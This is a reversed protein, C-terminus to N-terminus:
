EVCGNPSINCSETLEQMVRSVWDNWEAPSGLPVIQPESPTIIEVCDEGGGIALHQMEGFLDKLFTGNYADLLASQRARKIYSGGDYFLTPLGHSTMSYESEDAIWYLRVPVTVAYGLPDPKEGKVILNLTGAPGGLVYVHPRVIGDIISPYGEWVSSTDPFM